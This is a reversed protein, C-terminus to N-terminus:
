EKGAWLEETLECKDYELDNRHSEDEPIPFSGFGDIIGRDDRADDLSREEDCRQSVGTGSRQGRLITIRAYAARL